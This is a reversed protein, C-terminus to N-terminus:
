EYIGNRGTGALLNTQYHPLEGAQTNVLLMKKVSAKDFSALSVGLIYDENEDLASELVILVDDKIFIKWAPTPTTEEIEICDDSIQWAKCYDSLKWMSEGFFAWYPLRGDLAIQILAKCVLFNSLSSNELYWGPNDWVCIYIPPDEIWLDSLKISCYIVSEKCQYFVLYDKDDAFFDEGPIFFDQLLLPEYQNNCDQAIYNCRGYKKYYDRILEPFKIGLGAEKEAIEEESNGFGEDNHTSLLNELLGFAAKM